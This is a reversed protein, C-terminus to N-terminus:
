SIHAYCSGPANMDTQETTEFGNLSTSLTNTYSIHVKREESVKTGFV